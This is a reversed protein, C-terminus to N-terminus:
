HNEQLSHFAQNKILTSNGNSAVAATHMPLIQSQGAVSYL